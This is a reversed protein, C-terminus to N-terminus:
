SLDISDASAESVGGLSGRGPTPINHMLAASESAKSPATEKIDDATCAPQVAGPAENPVDASGDSLERGSTSMRDLMRFMSEPLWASRRRLVASRRRGDIVPRVPRAEAAQKSLMDDVMDLLECRRAPTLKSLDLDLEEDEEGTGGIDEEFHTLVLELQDDSLQDLKGQLDNTDDDESAQLQPPRAAMDNSDARVGATPEALTPQAVTPEEASLEEAEAGLVNEQQDPKPATIAPESAVAEVRAPEHESLDEAAFVEDMSVEKPLPQEAVAEDSKAEKSALSSAEDEATPEETSKAEESNFNIDKAGKQKMEADLAGREAISRRKMAITQRPLWSTRRKRTAQFNESSQLTPKNEHEQPQPPPQSALWSANEQDNQLQSPIQFGLLRCAKMYDELAGTHLSTARSQAEQAEKTVTDLVKETQRLNKEAAKMETNRDKKALKAESLQLYVADRKAKAAVCEARANGLTTLKDVRSSASGAISKILDEKSTDLHAPRMLEEMDNGDPLNQFAAQLKELAFRETVMKVLDADFVSLDKNANEVNSEAATVDEVSAELETEHSSIVETSKQHAAEALSRADEKQQREADVERVKSQAEDVESQRKAQVTSLAKGIMQYMRDQFKHCSGDPARSVVGPFARSLMDRVEAPLDAEKLAVQISSWKPEDSDAKRPRGGKAGGKARKAADAGSGEPTARKSGKPPMDIM